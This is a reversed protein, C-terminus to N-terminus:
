YSMNLDRPSPPDPLYDAEGPAKPTPRNESSMEVASIGSVIVEEDSAEWDDILAGADGDDDNDDEDDDHEEAGGCMAAVRQLVWQMELLALSPLPRLEPDDTTFTIQDGSCIKTETVHNWLKLNGASTLDVPLEPRALLSTRRHCPRIPMWYFEVVLSRRDSALSIPKLAFRANGWYTHVTPALCLMNHVQETGKEAAPTGKAGLAGDEWAAVQSKSWFTRLLDWFTTVRPDDKNKGLPYAYIHAVELHLDARTIVCRGADRM